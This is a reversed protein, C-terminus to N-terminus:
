HDRRQTTLSNLLDAIRGTTKRRDFTEVVASNPARGPLNNKWAQYCERVAEIIGAQNEPNVVWGGGTKQLLSALAGEYTFALIPRRTKLYEYTKGPIQINYTEALLLLLDSHFLRGLTESHDLPGIIEACGELGAESILDAVSHGEISECWGILEIRLDESNIEGADILTRLARFLPTPNRGLYLSGAYTIRFKKRMGAGDQERKGLEDMTEKWELGDFGNMVAVFKSAPLKDYASRMVAAHEETVCVVARARTVTLRELAGNIKRFLENRSYQPQLGTVWPDRFHAVWPLGTLLSLAYGALHNTFYPGSSYIVQAGTQRIARM